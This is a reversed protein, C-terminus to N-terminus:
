RQGLHPFVTMPLRETKARSAEPASTSHPQPPEASATDKSPSRYRSVTGQPSQPSVWMATQGGDRTSSPAVARAQAPVFCNQQKMPGSPVTSFCSRSSAMRASFSCRCPSFSANKSLTIM